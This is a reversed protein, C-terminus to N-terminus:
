FHRGIYSNYISELVNNFDELAENDTETYHVYSNRFTFKFRYALPLGSGSVGLISNRVEQISNIKSLKEQFNLKLVELFELKPMAILLQNLQEKEIFKFGYQNTAKNWLIICFNFTFGTGEHTYELVNYSFTQSFKSNQRNKFISPIQIEKLPKKLGSYDMEEINKNIQKLAEEESDYKDLNNILYPSRVLFLDKNIYINM